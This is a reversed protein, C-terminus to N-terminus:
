LLMVMMLKPVCQVMLLQIVLVDLPSYQVLQLLKVIPLKWAQQPMLTNEQAPLQSRLVQLVSSVLPVPLAHLEQLPLINDLPVIQALQSLLFPNKVRLVTLAHLLELLQYKVQQAIPVREPAVTRRQLEQLVNHVPILFQDMVLLALQPLQIPLAEQPQLPGVLKFVPEKPSVM